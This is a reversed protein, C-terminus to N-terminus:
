MLGLYSSFNNRRMNAEDIYLQPCADSRWRGQRKISLFDCGNMAAATAGGRRGSHLSFSKPNQVGMEGLLDRFAKLAAQASFASGLFVAIGNRCRIAPFLHGLFPLQGQLFAEYQIRLTYAKLLLVPCFPSGRIRAVFVPQGQGLQDTKSSPFTILVGDEYFFLDGMRLKSLCNYRGLSAFSLVMATITRWRLISESFGSTRFLDDGLLTVGAKVMDSSLPMTHEVPKAYARTIGRLTLKVRPHLSPSPYGALQHFHNVAAVMASVVSTSKKEAAFASIVAEFHLPDIPLPPFSRDLALSVFTTWLTSYRKRTSTALTELAFPRDRFLVPPFFSATLWDANIERLFSRLLPFACPKRWDCSVLRNPM